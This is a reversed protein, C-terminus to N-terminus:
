LHLLLSTDHLPMEQHNTQFDVQKECGKIQERWIAQWRKLVCKNWTSWGKPRSMRGNMRLAAQFYITKCCMSLDKMYGPVTMQLRPACNDSSAPIPTSRSSGLSVRTRSVSSSKPPNRLSTCKTSFLKTALDRRTCCRTHQGFLWSFSPGSPKSALFILLLKKM